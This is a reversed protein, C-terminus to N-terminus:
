INQYIGIIILIIKKGDLHTQRIDNYITQPTAFIVKHKDYLQRRKSPPLNGTIEVVM